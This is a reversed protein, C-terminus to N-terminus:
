KMEISLSDQSITALPKACNMLRGFLHGNVLVGLV